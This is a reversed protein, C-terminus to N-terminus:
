NSEEEYESDSDESVYESDTDSIDDTTGYKEYYESIKREAKFTALKAKLMAEKVKQKHYKRNEDSTTITNNSSMVLENIDLESLELEEKKEKEINEKIVPLSQSIQSNKDTQKIVNCLGDSDPLDILIQECKCKWFLHIESEYILIYEPIFMANYSILADSNNNETEESNCISNKIRKNIDEITYKKSFYKGTSNVFINLFDKWWEVNNQITHKLFKDDIIIEQENEDIITQICEDDSCTVNFKYSPIVRGNITCKKIYQPKDIVIM